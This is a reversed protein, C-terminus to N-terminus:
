SKEEARMSAFQDAGIPVFRIRDGPALLAAPERAPDFLVLPTAGIVNWGGPLNGPYIVTQRNAVAVAGAPIAMRPTARRPIALREDHIGIYAHGPAFGLMFVMSAPGSHMAVVEDPTVGAHQAVEALDPGHEGGYCVPIEILRGAAADPQIGSALAREIRAALQSYTPGDGTPRYHVAVATFSPVIDTVGPLQADRLMRAAALCVQGTHVDLTDGFRILVCRDGQAQIRWPTEPHPAGPNADSASGAHPAAANSM